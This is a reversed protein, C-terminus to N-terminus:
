RWTISRAVGAGGSTGATGTGVGSGAAGAPASIAGTWGTLDRSNLQAWGGSGSGGGGCNGATPTGGDGGAAVVNVIGTVAKANVIVINGGGGGAGGANVGDGAGAGGPYGGMLMPPRTQTANAADIGALRGSTAVDFKRLTLSTGANNTITGPGGGAGSTGNGGTGGATTYPIACFESSFSTAAVGVGTVGTTGRAGTGLTIARAGNRYNSTAGSAADKNNTGSPPTVTAAITFPSGSAPGALTGNVNLLFGGMDLQVGTSGTLATYNLDQNARYLTGSVKTTGTPTATGDFTAAGDSSDGLWPSSTTVSGNIDAVCGATVSDASITVTDRSLCGTLVVNRNGGSSIRFGATHTYALGSASTSQCGSLVHNDSSVVNFGVGSNCDALCGALTSDAGNIRFGDGNNEQSDCTSLVHRSTMDWGPGSATGFAKCATFHCNAGNVRFGTTVSAQATCNSFFHDTSQVRFGDGGCSKAHCNDIRYEVCGTDLYFGANAAGVAIVNRIVGRAFSLQNTNNTHTFHLGDLGGETKLDSIIFQEVSGQSEDIVIMNTSSSSSFFQSAGPGDGRLHVHSRIGIQSVKCKTYGKGPLYVTGGGVAAAANIAAQVAATDDTTGDIKAGYTRVDFMNLRQYTSSLGVLSSYATVGDGIKVYGTDTEYAVLGAGVIPNQKALNAATDVFRAPVIAGTDVYRSREDDTLNSLTVPDGAEYQRRRTPVSRTAYYSPM